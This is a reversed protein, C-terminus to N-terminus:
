DATLDRTMRLFTVVNGDPFTRDYIEGRVFGAREYVIAARENWPLVDLTLRAPDWTERVLAVIAQTFPLGIGRGTLDPRLGLGIEVEGPALRCELFGVLEGTDAEVAALGTPTGVSARLEAEDSPDNSPNYEQYPPDYRWALLNEVDDLSLPRFAFRVRRLRRRHRRM